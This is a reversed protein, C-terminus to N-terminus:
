NRVSTPSRSCAQTVGSFQRIKGLSL